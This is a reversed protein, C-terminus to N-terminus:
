VGVRRVAREDDLQAVVDGLELKRGSGLLEDGGREAPAIGDRVRAPGIVRGRVQRAEDRAPPLVDCVHAVAERIRLHRPADRLPVVLYPPRAGGVPVARPQRPADGFPVVHQGERPPREAATRAQRAGDGRPARVDCVGVAGVM